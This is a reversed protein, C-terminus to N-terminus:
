FKRPEYNAVKIFLSRVANTFRWVDEVEPDFEAEVQWISHKLMEASLDFFAINLYRRVINAKVEAKQPIPVGNVEKLAM